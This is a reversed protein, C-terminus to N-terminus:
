QTGNKYVGVGSLLFSAAAVQRQMHFATKCDQCAPPAVDGSRHLKDQDKGCKLCRYAYIPM